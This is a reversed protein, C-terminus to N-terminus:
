SQLLISNVAIRSYYYTGGIQTYLSLGKSRYNNLSGDSCDLINKVDTSKMWDTPEAKKKEELVELIKSLKNDLLDFDKKTLFDINM